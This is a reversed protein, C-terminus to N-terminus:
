NLNLYGCMTWLQLVLSHVDIRTHRLKKVFWRGVNKLKIENHIIIFCLIMPAIHWNESFCKGLLKLFLRAVDQSTLMVKTLLRSHRLEPDEDIVYPLDTHFIQLSVARLCTSLAQSRNLRSSVNAARINSLSQQEANSFRLGALCRPLRKPSRDKKGEHCM